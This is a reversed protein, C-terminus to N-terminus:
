SEDDETLNDLSMRDIAWGVPICLLDVFWVVLRRM